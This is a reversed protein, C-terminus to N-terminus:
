IGVGEYVRVGRKFLPKFLLAFFLLWLIGLLFGSLLERDNLQGLYVELPFSLFYRFPLLRAIFVISPPFAALPAGSGSFLSSLTGFIAGIATAEILWFTTTGMFIEYSFRLFLGLLIALIFFLLESLTLGLDVSDKLILYVLFFVPVIVLIRMTKQACNHAFDWYVYSFPLMLFRSFEGNRIRQELDEWSWAQTLRGVPLSLLFYTVVQKVTMPFGKVSQAVGVWLVMVFLPFVMGNIIWIVTGLRYEFEEQLHARYISVFKALSAKM